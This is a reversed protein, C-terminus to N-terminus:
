RKKTIRTQRLRPNTSVPARHHTHALTKHNIPLFFHSGPKQKPHPSLNKIPLWHLTPHIICNLNFFIDYSFYGKMKTQKLPFTKFLLTYQAKNLMLIGVYQFKGHCLDEQLCINCDIQLVGTLEVPYNDIGLGHIKLYM